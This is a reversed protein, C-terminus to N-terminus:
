FKPFKLFKSLPYLPINIVSTGLTKCYRKRIRQSLLKSSKPSNQNTSREFTKVVFQLECFHYNQTDDNPIYMLKDTM